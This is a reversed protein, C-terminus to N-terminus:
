KRINDTFAEFNFQKEGSECSTLRSYKKMEKNRTWIEDIRDYVHLTYRKTNTM